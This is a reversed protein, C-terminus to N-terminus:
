ASARKQRLRHIGPAARCACERRNHNVLDKRGSIVRGIRHRGEASASNNYHARAHGPQTVHAIRRLTDLCYAAGHQSSNEDRPPM